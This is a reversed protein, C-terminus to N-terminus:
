VQLALQLSRVWHTRLMPFTSQLRYRAQGIRIPRDEHNIGEVIMCQSEGPARLELSM